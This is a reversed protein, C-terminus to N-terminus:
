HKTQDRWGGAGGAVPEVALYYLSDETTLYYLSDETGLVFARHLARAAWTAANRLSATWTAM